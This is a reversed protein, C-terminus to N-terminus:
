YAIRALAYGRRGNRDTVVFRTAGYTQADLAVITLPEAWNFHAHLGDVGNAFTDGVTLSM